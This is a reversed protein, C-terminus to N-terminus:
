ATVSARAAVRAAIGDMVCRLGFEEGDAATPDFAGASMAEMLAPYHDGHERLVSVAVADWEEDPVGAQDQEPEAAPTRHNWSQVLGTLTFVVDLKEAGTLGTDALAAVAAELWQAQNPGMLRPRAALEFMWPHHHHVDRFDRAWKELKPRWGDGLDGLGPAGDLAADLMLDILEAKGPVYRYLSMTTFGFESAVRQMSVASLGEVDAVEIATQVIREISLGPKPGRSPRESEGWLLKTSRAVGRPAGNRGVSM